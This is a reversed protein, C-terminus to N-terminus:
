MAPLIASAIFPATDISATRIETNAPSSRSSTETDTDM